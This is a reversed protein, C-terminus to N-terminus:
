NERSLGARDLGLAVALDGTTEIVGVSEPFATRLPALADLAERVRGGQINAAALVAFVTPTNVPSITRASAHDLAQEAYFMACDARQHELADVALVTLTRSRGVAVLSLDSLLAKGDPSASANLATSWTDLRADMQQTFSRCANVDDVAPRAGMVAETLPGFLDAQLGVGMAESIGQEYRSQLALSRTPDWFSGLAPVDLPTTLSARLTTLDGGKDVAFPWPTAADFGVGAAVAAARWRDASKQDARLEAVRQAAAPLWKPAASDPSRKAWQDALALMADGHARGLVGEFAALEVRARQEPVSQIASAAKVNLWDGRHLAQWAERGGNEEMTKAFRDPERVVTAIWSVDLPEAPPAVPAPEECAALLLLIM